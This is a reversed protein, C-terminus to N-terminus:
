DAKLAEAADVHSARRAPIWTALTSIVLVVGVSGALVTGDITSVEFSLSRLLKAFELFAVLGGVAGIAIITEGQRLIMRAARNPALGLAIRISIERSRLSVVYAIVGYLGIVGLLLTTAAGFALVTLAFTMQSRADTVVQDMTAPRHFPLDPDLSHLEQKLLSPLGPAPGRTRVVFAMDRATTNAAGAVPQLSPEEPFYVESIPPETLTSDRVDAVVGVITFWAGDSTPRLRKGVGSRGTTDHWFHEVFGRSVIAENAGLRVTADDFSRGAIFPIRMANFYGSSASTSQFIPPLVDSASSGDDAWILVQYPFGEIELPLKATTGVAIVGPMRQIREIAQRYFQAADAAQKYAAVPLFTWFTFVNSSDFGPQVDRLKLISRALIGSSALLVLSLAVEVAVFTARLRHTAREATGTRGGSRLTRMAYGSRVRMAGIATSVLAFLIALAIAILTVSMDLHVENLRPLGLSGAHVLLQLTTAALGVGIVGGIAAILVSEAMVSQWLAWSSAGLALRVAFERQRSQGRVLLLSAVNGCAVIVVLAVTAAILWLVRDVGAVVDDRMRHLVAIAQTQRLLLATSVGPRQEPFREPLRALLRQLEQQAAAITVHPRLRGIGDYGFNGVYTPNSVDLPMWIPTRAEPFGFSAPMVGIVQRPTGDVDIIEGTVSKRGGFRTKWLVESILAVPTAGKVADSDAFLRGIMPKAGLVAFASATMWGARAREPPLDPVRYTLTAALSVYLGMTEFSMAGDRYAAYTGPAQKAIKVGLGPMTHWLGVLRDSEPYPLPRLLVANVVGFVACGAGISLAITSITAISFGRARALSRSAVALSTFAFLRRSEHFRETWATTNGFARRAAYHADVAPMGERRLQDAELQVHSAIEDAFDATPRRRRWFM